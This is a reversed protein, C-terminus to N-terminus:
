EKPKATLQVLAYDIFGGITQDASNYGSSLKDFQEHYDKNDARDEYLSELLAVYDQNGNFVSQVNDSLYDTILDRDNEEGTSNLVPLNNKIYYTDNATLALQGFTNVWIWYIVANGESDLTLTFDTPDDIFGSYQYKGSTVTRARFLLIHGNLYKAGLKESASGNNETIEEIRSLVTTETDGDVLVTSPKEVFARIQLNYRLESIDAGKSIVKFRLEGQANPCLQDDGDAMRWRVFQGNPENNTITGTNGSFAAELNQYFELFGIEGTGDVQLEFGNNSSSAKTGNSKVEGSMTFWAISGIIIIIATLIGMAGFKLLLLKRKREQERREDSEATYASATSALDGINFNNNKDSM